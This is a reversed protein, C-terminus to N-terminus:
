IWITHNGNMKEVCLIEIEVTYEYADCDVVTELM